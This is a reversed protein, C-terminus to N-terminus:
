VKGVVYFTNNLILVYLDRRLRYYENGSKSCLDTFWMSIYDERQKIDQDSDKKNIFHSFLIKYGKRILNDLTTTKDSQEWEGVPNITEILNQKKSKVRINKNEPVDSNFHIINILEKLGDHKNILCKTLFESEIHDVNENGFQKLSLNNQIIQTNNNTVVNLTVPSHNEIGNLKSELLQIQRQIDIVNENATSGGNNKKQIDEPNSLVHCV